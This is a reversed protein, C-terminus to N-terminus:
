PCQALAKEKNTKKYEDLDERWIFIPNSDERETIRSWNHVYNIERRYRFNLYAYRLNNIPTDSRLDDGLAGEHASIFTLDLLRRDSPSYRHRQDFYKLEAKVAELIRVRAELLLSSIPNISLLVEMSDLKAQYDKAAKGTLKRIKAM